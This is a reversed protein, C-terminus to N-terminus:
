STRETYPAPASTDAGLGLTARVLLVIWREGPRFLGLRWTLAKEKFVIPVHCFHVFVNESVATHPFLILLFASSVSM